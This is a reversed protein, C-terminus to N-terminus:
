INSNSCKGHSIIKSKIKNRLAELEKESLEIEGNISTVHIEIRLGLHFGNNFAIECDTKHDAEMRNIKELLIDEHTM